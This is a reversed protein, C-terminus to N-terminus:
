SVERGSDAAIRKERLRIAAIRRDLQVADKPYLGGAFPKGVGQLFINKGADVQRRCSLADAPAMIGRRRCNIRTPFPQGGGYFGRHVGRKRLADHYMHVGNVRNRVPHPPIRPRLQFLQKGTQLPLPNRVGRRTQRQGCLDFLDQAPRRKGVDEDEAIV